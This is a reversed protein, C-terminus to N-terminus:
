ENEVVKGFQKSVGGYTKEIALEILQNVSRRQHQAIRKLQAHMAPDIRLAIRPKPM